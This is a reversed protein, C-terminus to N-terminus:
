RNKNRWNRRNQYIRYENKLMTVLDLGFFLFYNLLSFAFSVLVILGQGPSRFFVQLIDIVLLVVYGIALWKVKLPLFYFILIELNPAITAFALLLTLNLYENTGTGSILMALIVGLVGALYYLNFRFGGWHKELSDGIFFYFYLSIFVVIPNSLPPLFIFTVLRWVQGQTFIAARDLTLAFYISLANDGSLMLLVYVAFMGAVIIRMLNPIYRKGHKYELRYLWKM